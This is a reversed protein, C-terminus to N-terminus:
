SGTERVMLAQWFGFDGWQAVSQVRYTNNRWVIQDSIVGLAESTSLLKTRSIVHLSGSIRDGEPFMELTKNDAVTIPGWAPIQQPHNSAIWGGAGFKGATRIVVFSQAYDIDDVIEGFDYM